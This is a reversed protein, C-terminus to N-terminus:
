GCMNLLYTHPQNHPYILTYGDLANTPDYATTGVTNQAWVVPAIGVALAAMFWALHRM